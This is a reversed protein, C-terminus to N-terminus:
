HGPGKHVPPLKRQTLIYELDDAFSRRVMSGLMVGGTRMAHEEHAVAEDRVQSIYAKILTKLKPKTVRTDDAERSM